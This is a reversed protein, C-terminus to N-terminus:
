KAIVTAQPDPRLKEARGVLTLFEARYGHADAGLAGQAADRTMTWSASGKHKSDRLLMGFAAVSSAFRLDVSANAFGEGRDTV